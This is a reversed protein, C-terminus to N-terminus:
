RQSNFTMTVKNVKHTLAKHLNTNQRFVNTNRNGQCVLIILILLLVYALVQRMMERMKQDLLLKRHLKKADQAVVTEDPYETCIYKKPLSNMSSFFFTPWLECVKPIM